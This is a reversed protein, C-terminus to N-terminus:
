ASVGSPPIEFEPQRSSITMPQLTALSCPKGGLGAAFMLRRLGVTPDAPDGHFRVQSQAFENGGGWDAFLTTADREIVALAVDGSRRAFNNSLALSWAPRISVLNVDCGAALTQLDQLLTQDMAAARLCGRSSNRDASVWCAGDFGTVAPAVARLVAMAERRSKLGEPKPTTFVRALGGSLWVSLRARRMGKRSEDIQQRIVDLLSERVELDFSWANVGVHVLDAGRGHLYLVWTNRWAWSM